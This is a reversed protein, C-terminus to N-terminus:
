SNIKSAIQSQAKVSCPRVTVGHAQIMSETTILDAEYNPRRTTSTSLNSKAHGSPSKHLINCRYKESEVFFNSIAHILLIASSIEHINSNGQFNQVSRPCGDFADFFCCTQDPSGAFFWPTKSHNGFAIGANADITRDDKRFDNIALTHLIIQDFGDRAIASSNPTSSKSFNAKSDLGFFSNESTSDKSFASSLM